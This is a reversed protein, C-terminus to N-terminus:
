KGLVSAVEVVKGTALSRDVAEVAATVLLGDEPTGWKPKRGEAALAIFERIPHEETIFDLLLPTRYDKESTISIGENDGFIQIIGRECYFEAGFEIINNRWGEPIIWSNELHVPVGGAFNVLAHVTDWADIGLGALHGKHGLAYATQPERGFVFRVLDMTHSMLFWHPASRHAWSLKDRIFYLRDSLRIRAHSPPGLEGSAVVEHAKMFPPYWRNHFNVMLVGPAKAAAAVIKRCEAVSTAMPKELLVHKGAALMLLAPEVHAFDPTAVSVIRVEPDDAIEQLDKAAKVGFERAAARANKETRSWIYLLKTRPDGSYTRAHVKGYMGVGIVAAGLRASEM